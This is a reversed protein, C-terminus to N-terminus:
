PVTVVTAAGDALWVHGASVADRRLPEANGVALADARVQWGLRTALLGALRGEARESFGYLSPGTGCGDVHDLHVTGLVVSGYEPDVFRDTATPAYLRVHLDTADADCPQKLGRDGDFRLLDSDPLRYGLSRPHGRRVLGVARLAAKVKPVTAAGAFILSVPWDRGDRRLTPDGDEAFFEPGTVSLQRLRPPHLATFTTVPKEDESKARGAGPNSVPTWSAMSSAPGPQVAIVAQRRLDVDILVDRLARAHMRVPEEGGPQPLVATVDRRTPRVDALVTAVPTTQGRERLLLHSSGLLRALLGGAAARRVVNDLTPRPANLELVTPMGTRRPEIEEVPPGVHGVQVDFTRVVVPAARGPAGALVQVRHRGVGGAVVRPDFRAVLRTPCRGAPCRAARTAQVRGDVRVLVRAVASADKAQVRATLPADATLYAVDAAGEEDRLTRAGYLAGSLAASFPPDASLGIERSLHQGSRTFALVTVATVVAVCGLAIATRPRM